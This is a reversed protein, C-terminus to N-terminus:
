LVSKMSLYLLINALIICLRVMLYLEGVTMVGTEEATWGRRVREEDWLQSVFKETKVPKSGAEHFKEPAEDLEHEADENDETETALQNLDGNLNEDMPYVSSEQYVTTYDGISKLHRAVIEDKMSAINEDSQEALLFVQDDVFNSQLDSTISPFLIASQSEADSTEPDMPYDFNALRKNSIPLAPLETATSIALNGGGGSQKRKRKMKSNNLENEDQPECVLVNKKYSRLCITASSTNEAVRYLPINLEGRRDAPIM